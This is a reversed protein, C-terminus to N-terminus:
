VNGLGRQSWWSLRETQRCRYCAGPSTPVVPWSPSETFSLARAEAPNEERGAM